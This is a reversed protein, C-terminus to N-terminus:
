VNRKGKVLKMYEEETLESTDIEKLEEQKRELSETPPKYGEKRAWTKLTAFFDKYKKGKSQIYDDLAQIREEYDNPFYVKVKEYEEDAFLVNQNEGYKSKSSKKDLIGSIIKRSHQNCYNKNNINYTSRRKCKDGTSECVCDCELNQEFNNYLNFENLKNIDNDYENDEEDEKDPKKAEKQNKEFGNAKKAKLFIRKNKRQDGVKEQM